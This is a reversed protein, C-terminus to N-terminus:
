NHKVHRLVELTQHKDNRIMDQHLERIVDRSEGTEQKDMQSKMKVLIKDSM